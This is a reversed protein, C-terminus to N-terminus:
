TWSTKPSTAQRIVTSACVKLKHREEKVNSTKPKPNSKPSNRNKDQAAQNSANGPREDMSRTEGRLWAPYPILLSAARACSRTNTM